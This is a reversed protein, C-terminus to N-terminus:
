SLLEHLPLVPMEPASSALLQTEGAHVHRLELHGAFPEEIKRVGDLVALMGFLASRAAQSGFAELMERDADSMQSVWQSHRSREESRLRGPPEQWYRVLESSLGDLVVAQLLDVFTTQDM